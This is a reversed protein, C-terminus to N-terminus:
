KGGLTHLRDLDIPVRKGAMLTFDQLLGANENIIALANNIEHSITASMKGFFKLGQEGIMDWKTNM